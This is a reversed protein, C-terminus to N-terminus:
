ESRDVRVVPQGGGGLEVALVHVAVVVHRVGAEVAAGRRVAGARLAVVRPGPLVDGLPLAGGLLDHAVPHVTGAVPLVDEVAVVAGQPHALGVAGPGLHEAPLSPLATRVRRLGARGAVCLAPSRRTRSGRPVT